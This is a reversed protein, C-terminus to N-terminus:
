RPEAPPMIGLRRCAALYEKWGKKGYFRQTKIVKAAARHFSSTSIVMRNWTVDIAPDGWEIWSHPGRVREGLCIVWQRHYHQRWLDGALALVNNHCNNGEDSSGEDVNQKVTFVYMPLSADALYGALRSAAEEASVSLHGEVLAIPDSGHLAREMPLTPVNVIDITSSTGPGVATRFELERTRPGGWRDTRGVGDLM